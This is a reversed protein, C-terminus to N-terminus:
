LSSKENHSFHSLTTSCQRPTLNSLYGLKYFDFLFLSPNKGTLNNRILPKFLSFSLSVLWVLHYKKLKLYTNLLTSYKRLTPFEATNYLVYLSKVGTETKQLYVLNEDLGKHILPNNIHIVKINQELLDHRFLTDEHGYERINENFRIQNFIKKPIFINFTTFPPYNSTNRIEATSEERVKGYKLRLSFAPNNDNKDYATGGIIAANENRLQLYKQLFDTDFVEADCDIILLFDFKAMDAMRNIHRGRGVNDKFAFYRVFDLTAIKENEELCKTSGDEAVIIEFGINLTNAQAHLDNVLKTVSYNHAPILISLM